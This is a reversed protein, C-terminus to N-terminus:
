KRQLYDKYHFLQFLQQTFRIQLTLYHDAHPNPDNTLSTGDLLDTTTFHYVAELGLNAQDTLRWNAGIGIPFTFAIPSRATALMPKLWEYTTADANVKTRYYLVGFGAVFYADLSRNYQEGVTKSTTNIQFSIASGFLHSHFALDGWTGPRARAQLSQYSNDWRVSLYNTFRYALGASLGIHLYHHQLDSDKLRCIDGTYGALGIGAVLSLRNQYPHAYPKLFANSQGNPAKAKIRSGTQSHAPLLCYVILCFALLLRGRTQHFCEEQLLSFGRYDM